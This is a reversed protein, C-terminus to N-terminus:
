VNIELTDYALSINSPLTKDVVQHLGMQHSMHILYAREPAIQSVFRVAEQLTQHTPHQQPRLANVVLVRVGQLLQRSEASMVSMDTIYALPGIRYALIPLNGHMVQIPLVETHGVQFPIGPEVIHLPIRPVGPYLHEAFCYPMRQRIHGVTFADAYLPVDGYACFPRLDDLGGVHDYHEHTILVSDIRRFPLPLMQQRFDPGCDILIREGTDTDLLASTRLRHDRPDKSSCVACDCGIQPVGTSTGTGLFRLKM